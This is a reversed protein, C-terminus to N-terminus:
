MATHDVKLKLKAAKFTDWIDTTIRAKLHDLTLSSPGMNYKVEAFRLTVRRLHPLGGNLKLTATAKAIQLEYAVNVVPDLCLERLSVPLRKQLHDQIIEPDENNELGSLLMPYSM